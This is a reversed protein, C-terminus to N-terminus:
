QVSLVKIVREMKMSRSGKVLITMGRNKQMMSAIDEIMCDIDEYWFGDKEFSDVTHKTLEGIGFLYNIDSHNLKKGLEKHMSEKEKGLELMDGMVFVKTKERKRLFEIAASMSTPNSNYTDDIIEHGHKSKKIELRGSVPTTAELGTKIESLSKSQSFMVAAAACANLVNHMGLLKLHINISGMPTRLKFSSNNRELSVHEPYIMADCNSGFSMIESNSAMEAWLDYFSDDHNLIAFKPTVKGQLIEGKANAVGNISKFGDLHAPAANNILVVDPYAVDVLYKIDGPKSAGMELVAYEYTNNMDLIMLPMGIDNNYNGVTNFTKHNQSFCTSVMEKLTTKGNSGTIGIFVPPLRKRWVRALDGLALKTDKVFITQVDNANNSDVVFAAAGNKKADNIFENGNFNPGRLGFFLQDKKITRTDTSVGRIIKEEGHFDGNILIAIESLKLDIM